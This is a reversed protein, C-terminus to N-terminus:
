ASYKLSVGVDQSNSNGLQSTNICTGLGLTLNDNMKQTYVLGLRGSSEM